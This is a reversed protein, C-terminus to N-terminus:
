LTSAPIAGGTGGGTTGGTGGAGTNGFNGTNGTNTFNGTNGTNNFNGTNGGTGTGTNRNRPINGTNNGTDTNGGSGAGGTGTGGTGTGGTGDNGTNDGTGDTGDTGTNGGTGTDDVVARQAVEIRGFTGDRANDGGATYYVSNPAFGTNIPGPTGGGDTDGDTGTGGTGTGGTGTGGTGTRGTGTGGTGDTGTGGNDTDDTVRAADIPISISWLGPIALSEGQPNQLTGVYRGNDMNYANIQGDGHNGILLHRSYKGFSAPAITVGWPANLQEGSIVRRLLRGSGDFENVYGLGAGNDPVGNATAGQKAYTIIIRNGIAHIGFPAYGAPLSTDIFGGSPTIRNFSTDFTDVKGNRFDAAFLFASGSVNLLALGTYHARGTADDYVTVADSGFRSNPSWAAITGARTAFIVKASTSPTTNTASVRFDLDSRNYAIGTPRADGNSGAPINVVTPQAIGGADYVTATNSGANATWAAGNAFVLGRPDALNADHRPAALGDRSTVLPIATYNRSSNIVSVPSGSGSSSGNCATLTSLTLALAAVGASWQKSM